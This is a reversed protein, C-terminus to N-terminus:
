NISLGRNKIVSHSTRGNQGDIIKIANEPVDAAVVVSNEPAKHAPSSRVGERRGDSCEWANGTERWLPGMPFPFPFRQNAGASTVGADVPAEGVAPPWPNESTGQAEEQPHLDM